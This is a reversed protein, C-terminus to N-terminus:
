AHHREIWRKAATLPETLPERVFDHAVAVAGVTAPAPKRYPGNVLVDVGPGLDITTSTNLFERWADGYLHAVEQRPYAALATRRVLAAVDHLAGADTSRAEINKLEILALRRYQNRQRRRAIVIAALALGFAFLAALVWWGATEPVYSMPAPMAVDALQDILQPLNLGELDEVTM